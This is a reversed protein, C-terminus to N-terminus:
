CRAIPRARTSWPSGPVDSAVPIFTAEEGALALKLFRGPPAGPPYTAIRSGAGYLWFMPATAASLLVRIAAGALAAFLASGCAVAADHPQERRRLDVLTVELSGYLGAREAVFHVLLVHPDYARFGLRM